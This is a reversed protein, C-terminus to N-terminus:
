AVAMSPAKFPDFEQELQQRFQRTYLRYYHGRKRLLESVACERNVVFFTDPQDAYWRATHLKIYFNGHDRTAVKFVDNTTAAVTIEVIEVDGVPALLRQAQELTLESSTM